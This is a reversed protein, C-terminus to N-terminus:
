QIQLPFDADIDTEGKTVPDNAAKSGPKHKLVVKLTGTSSAGSAFNASTGLALGNNDTNRSTVTLNAGSVVYFIEHDEGEEEIEETINEPTAPQSEDLFEIVGTYTVNARLNLVTIVPATGGPGDTDRWTATVVETSNTVNTLTLQITTILEQEDEPIVEDDKKCGATLIAFLALLLFLQQTKLM